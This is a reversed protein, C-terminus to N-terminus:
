QVAASRCQVVPARKRKEAPRHRPMIGQSTTLGLPKPTAPQPQKSLSLANDAVTLAQWKHTQYSNIGVRAMFIFIFILSMAGGCGRESNQLPARAASEGWGMARMQRSSSRSHVENLTPGALQVPGGTQDRSECKWGCEVGWESELSPGQGSLSGARRM